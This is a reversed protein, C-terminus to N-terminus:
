LKRLYQCPNAIFIKVSLVPYQSKIISKKQKCHTYKHIRKNRFEFFCFVLLLMFFHPSVFEDKKDLVFASNRSNFFQKKICKFYDNIIIQNLFTCVLILVQPCQRLNNSFLPEVACSLLHYNYWILDKRKITLFSAKVQFIRKKLIKILDM